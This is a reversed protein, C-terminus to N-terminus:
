VENWDSIQCTGVRNYCPGSNYSWIHFGIILM